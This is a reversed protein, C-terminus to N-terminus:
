RMSFLAQAWQGHCARATVIGSSRHTHCPLQCSTLQQHQCCLLACIFAPLFSSPFALLFIVHSVMILKMRQQRNNKKKLFQLFLPLVHLHASDLYICSKWIIWLSPHHCLNPWTSAKVGSGRPRCYKFTVVASVQVICTHIYAELWSIYIHKLGWVRRKAYAEHRM